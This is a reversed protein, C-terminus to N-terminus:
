SARMKQAALKLLRAYERPVFDRMQREAEIRVLPEAAPMLSVHPRDIPLNPPSSAPRGVTRRQGPEVRVVTVVKGNRMKARFPRVAHKGARLTGAHKGTTVFTAGKVDELYIRKKVGVWVAAEPRQWTARYVRVRKKLTSVPLGVAQAIQRRAQTRARAAGANLARAAAQPVARAAFRGLKAELRRVDRDLAARNFHVAVATM